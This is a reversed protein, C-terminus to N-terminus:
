FSSNNHLLKLISVGEFRWSNHIVTCNCKYEDSRGTQYGPVLRRLQVQVERHCTVQTLFDRARRSRAIADLLRLESFSHGRFYLAHRMEYHSLIMGFIKVSKQFFESTYVTSLNKVQQRSIRREPEPFLRKIGSVSWNPRRSM